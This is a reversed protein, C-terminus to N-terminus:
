RGDGLIHKSALRVWPTASMTDPVSTAIGNDGVVGGTAWFVSAQADPNFLADEGCGGVCGHPNFVFWWVTYAGGPLGSTQVNVQVWDDGRNLTAFGRTTPASPRM